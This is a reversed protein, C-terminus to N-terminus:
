ATKKALTETVDYLTYSLTMTKYKTPLKPDIYFTLGLSQTQYPKFPQQQFCFCEMKHFADAAESPTVSPIAQFIRNEGSRNQAKFELHISQGPHVTVESLPASFSWRAQADGNINTIFQVKVTRSTDMAVSSAAVQNSTKGNLSLKRCMVNYLPVLAYGFGFMLVSVWLMKWVATRNRRQLESDSM